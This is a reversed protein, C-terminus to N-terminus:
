CLLRAQGLEPNNTKLTEAHAPVAFLVSVMAAIMPNRHKM